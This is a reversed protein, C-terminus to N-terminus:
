YDTISEYAAEILYNELGNYKDGHDFAGLDYQRVLHYYGHSGENDWSEDAFSLESNLGLILEQYTDDGVKFTFCLKTMDQSLVATVEELSSSSPIGTAILPSYLGANRWIQYERGTEFDTKVKVGAPFCSDWLSKNGEVTFETFPAFGIEVRNLSRWNFCCGVPVYLVLELTYYGTYTKGSYPNTVVGKLGIMGCAPFTNEDMQCFSLTNGSMSAADSYSDSSGGTVAMEPIDYDSGDAHNVTWTVGATGPTRYIGGSTFDVQTTLSRMAGPALQYNYYRGLFRQSPFAPLGILNGTYTLEEGNGMTLTAIFPLDPYIDDYDDTGYFFLRALISDNFFDALGSADSWPIVRCGYEASPQISVQSGYYEFFDFYYGSETASVGKYALLETPIRFRSLRLKTGESDALCVSSSSDYFFHKVAHYNTCGSESVVGDEIMLEPNESPGCFINTSSKYQTFNFHMMAGSRVPRVYLKRENHLLYYEMGHQSDLHYECNEVSEPGLVATWDAAEIIMPRLASAEFFEFWGYEGTFHPLAYDFSTLPSYAFDLTIETSSSHRGDWSTVTLTRQPRQDGDYINRVWVEGNEVKAEMVPEGSDVFNATYPMDPPSVTLPIRTWDGQLVTQSANPFSLVRDDSLNDMDVKWHSKLTGADTMSLTIVTSTNRVVNFDSCNDAGLMLNVSLDAAAGSTTWNGEIHLYTCLGRKASPINAPTKAWPDENGPLLIGQCNEPVYFVAGEGNNLAALDSASASDGDATSAAAGCAAFPWVATARQKVRVSTIQYDCNELDKDLLLTYRAFMRTLPIELEGAFSGAVIQMGERFCMVMDTPAVSITGLESERAPAHLEGCNALAYIRYTVDRLLNLEVGSDAAYAEADLMGNRYAYVNLNTVETESIQMSSKTQRSARVSVRVKEEPHIVQMPADQELPECAMLAWLALAAIINIKRMIRDDGM